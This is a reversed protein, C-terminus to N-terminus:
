LDDPDLKLYSDEGSRCLAALQAVRPLETALWYRAAAQKARIFGDDGRRAARQEGM